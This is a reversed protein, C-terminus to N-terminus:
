QGLDERDIAIIFGLGAYGPGAAQVEEGVRVIYGSEASIVSDTASCDCVLEIIATECGPVVSSLTDGTELDKVATTTPELTVSVVTGMILKKKGDIIADGAKIKEASGGVMGSLEITYHVPKSTLSPASSKGSSRWIFILACAAIIVAVIIVIDFINLKWRPKNQKNEM